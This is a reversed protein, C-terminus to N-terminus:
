PNSTSVTSPPILLQQGLQITNADTIENIAILDALSVNFKDAIGSLTDGDAVVYFAVISTSTAAPATTSPPVVTTIPPLSTAVTSGPPKSECSGLVFAGLAIGVIALRRM